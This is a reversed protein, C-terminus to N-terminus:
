SIKTFNLSLIKLNEDRSFKLDYNQNLSKWDNIIKFYELPVEVYYYTVPDGNRDSNYVYPADLESSYTIQVPVNNTTPYIGIISINQIQGLKTNHVIKCSIELRNRM